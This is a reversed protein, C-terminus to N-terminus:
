RGKNEKRNLLIRNVVGRSLDIRVKQGAKIGRLADGRASIWFPQGKERFENGTHGYLVGRMYGYNDVILDAKLAGYFASYNANLFGENKTPANPTSSFIYGSLDFSFNNKCKQEFVPTNFDTMESTIIPHDKKYGVIDGNSLTKIIFNQAMLYPRQQLLYIKGNKVAFEMDIPHQQKGELYNIIAVIPIVEQGYKNDVASKCVWPQIQEGKYDLRLSMYHYHSNFNAYAEPSLVGIGKESFADKRIYKSIKIVEGEEGKVLKEATKGKTRNIVVYPDGDFDQSYVVGAYDPTQIMQQILVSMRPAKSNDLTIKEASQYVEELAHRMEEVTSVNLVSDFAGSYSKDKGDEIDASSRVAVMGGCAHMAKIAQVLITNPVHNERLYEQHCKSSLVFTKPVCVDIGFNQLDEIYNLSQILGCAKGGVFKKDVLIENLNYLLKERM